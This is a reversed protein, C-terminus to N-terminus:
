AGQEVDARVGGIVAVQPDDGVERGAEVTGFTRTASWWTSPM